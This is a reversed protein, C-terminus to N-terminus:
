VSVETRDENNPFHVRTRGSEWQATTVEFSIYNMKM